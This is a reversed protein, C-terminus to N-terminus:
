AFRLFHLSEADALLVLCGTCVMHFHLSEAQALLALCGLSIQLGQVLWTSICHNQRECCHGAVSCCMLSKCANKHACREWGLGNLNVFGVTLWNNLWHMRHWGHLFATIRRRGAIGLLGNLNVFGVTLQEAFVDQAFWSFYLSEAGALLVLCGM